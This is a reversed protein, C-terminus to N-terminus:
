QCARIKLKYRPAQASQGPSVWSWGEYGACEPKHMSAGQGSLVWGQGIAPNTVFYAWHGQAYTPTNICTQESKTPWGNIRCVFGSPFSGTGEVSLNAAKFLDWGSAEAPLGSLEIARVPRQSNRGFDVVLTVSKEAGNAATPALLRELHFNSMGAGVAVLAILGFLAIRLNFRV